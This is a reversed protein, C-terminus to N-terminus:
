NLSPGIYKEGRKTSFVEPDRIRKLVHNQSRMVEDWYRQREMESHQTVAEHPRFNGFKYSTNEPELDVIHPPKYDSKISFTVGKDRINTTTYRDQYQMMDENILDKTLPEFRRAPHDTEPGKRRPSSHRSNSSSHRSSM